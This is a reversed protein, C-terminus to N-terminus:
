VALVVLGAFAFWAPPSFLLQGTRQWRVSGVTQPQTDSLDQKSAASGGDVHAVVHSDDDIFGLEDLAELFGDLDVPEGYTLEYWDAAESPAAGDGLRKILAAGDPPFVGYSDIDVRGIVIDDGDALFTLPHMRLVRDVATESM